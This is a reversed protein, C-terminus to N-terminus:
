WSDITLHLGKVYLTLALYTRQMHVLFGRVSELQHHDLGLAQSSTLYTSLESKLKKCSNNLRKGSKRQTWARINNVTRFANNPLEITSVVGQSQEGLFAFSQGDWPMTWGDLSSVFKSPMHICYLHVQQHWVACCLYAQPVLGSGMAQKHLMLHSLVPTEEPDVRLLIRGYDGQCPDLLPDGIFECRFSTKNSPWAAARTCSCANTNSRAAVIATTRTTTSQGHYFFKLPYTYRSSSSRRLQRDTSADL